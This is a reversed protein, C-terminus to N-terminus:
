PKADNSSCSVTAHMCVCIYRHWNLTDLGVLALHGNLAELGVLALHWNLTDLGVLTLHLLTERKRAKRCM